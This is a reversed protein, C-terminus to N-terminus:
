GEDAFRTALTRTDGNADRLVWTATYSGPALAPVVAGAATDVNAASFVPRRSAARTITLAVPVGTAGISGHAAPLGSQASAIFAGYLTEDQIPATSEIYPVSTVTQGGSFEDTQAIESVPLGAASGSLPCIRGSGGVGEGVETSAPPATLPAGWYEGAECTGSAIETENGVIALRLHAVHLSTLRRGAADVLTLVEGGRLSLGSSFIRGGSGARAAHGALRYSAAPVLGSCGVAKIRVYATCTPFGTPRFTLKSNGLASVSGPEGLPVTLDVLAGNPTLANVSRNDESSMTLPARAGIHGLDVQAADTETECLQAPAVSQAAGARLALVGTQGCPGLLVQTGEAGVHVAYGDDLDFWGTYGSETFPNGGEGTEIVDPPPSGAGSGYSIEIEDRDDGVAHPAGDPGRLTLPGWSGDARSVGAALAVLAGARALGVTVPLRGPSGTSGSVQSSFQRLDITHAPLTTTTAASSQVCGERADSWIDQLLYEHGNILQSYPSGDPAYGLPPGQEPGTECKDAAEFGNPDMWGNGIPDTIAEVTEHAITDITSEAEPNGEPDSGPPATFEILPDPIAAYITVGHGLDFESHYGAYETTGCVGLSTCTDVDPPLLIFWINSLGRAAPDAPGILTDIEEQLELDTICTAVGSPSPCQRSRPPYPDSDDVADTAADYHIEYGGPGSGDGYQDLLSFINTTQGSDHAVDTLFQEILPEYSLVGPAPSGDFHYGGPAWFITHITVDRMVSGGHYVVPISPAVAIERGSRVPELGLAFGIRPRFTTADAAAPLSAAALLAACALVAVTALLAARGPGTLRDM